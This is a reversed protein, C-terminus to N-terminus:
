LCLGADTCSGTGADTTVASQCDEYTFCHKGTACLGGFGGLTPGCTSGCDIDSEQANKIGDNCSPLECLNNKCVRGVNCDSNRYCRPTLTDGGYPLATDCLNYPYNNWVNALLFYNPGANWNALQGNPALFFRSGDTAECLDMVQLGGASLWGGIASGSTVLEVWEHSLSEMQFDLNLNGSPSPAGTFLKGGTTRLAFLGHRGHGVDFFNAGAGGATIDNTSTLIAYAHTSSSPLNCPAGVAATMINSIITDPPIFIVGENEPDDCEANVFAGTARNGSGDPYQASWMAWWASTQVNNFWSRAFAKDPNTWPTGPNSYWIIDVPINGSMVCGACSVLTVPSNASTASFPPPTLQSVFGPAVIVKIVPPTAAVLGMCLLLGLIQAAKM